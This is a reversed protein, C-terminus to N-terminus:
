GRVIEGDRHPDGLSMRRRHRSQHHCILAMALFCAIITGCIVVVATLDAYDLVSLIAIGIALQVVSGVLGYAAGGHLERRWRYLWLIFVPSNALFWFSVRRDPPSLYLLVVFGHYAIAGVSLMVSVWRPPRETAYDAADDIITSPPAYPNIM